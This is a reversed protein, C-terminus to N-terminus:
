EVEQYMVVCYGPCIIQCATYGYQKGGPWNALIGEATEDDLAARKINTFWEEEAEPYLERVQRGFVTRAKMGTIEEFKRNVYCIITDDDKDPGGVSVHYVCYAFPLRDFLRFIESAHALSSKASVSHDHDAHLRLESNRTQDELDPCESFLTFGV